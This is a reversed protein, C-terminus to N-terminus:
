WCHDHLGIHVSPGGDNYDTVTSANNGIWESCSSNGSTNFAKLTYFGYPLLISAQGYNDTPYKGVVVGDEARSVTIITKSLDFGPFSVGSVNVKLLGVEAINLLDVKVDETIGDVISKWDDDFTEYFMKKKNLTLVDHCRSTFSWNRSNEDAHPPCEAADDHGSRVSEIIGLPGSILDGYAWYNLRFVDESLISVSPPGNFAYTRASLDTTAFSIAGIV